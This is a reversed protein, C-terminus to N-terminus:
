RQENHEIIENKDEDSKRATEAEKILYYDEGLLAENYYTSKKRLEKDLYDYGFEELLTQKGSFLNTGLGLREGEIQVEISALITPYMDMTTFNRNITNTGEIASNIIVNYVTREYDKDIHSAYFESQMGLHDGIIVITTNKYFSQKATWEVFENVLKSTYAHVNEYQTEYKSEAFESLYGDVFHTDATHIILNFPEHKSALNLVEEKAWEFLKDDEFGWWVRDKETMKGQEIAYNVDFIKYRGNTTFYQTRGGYEGESGMMIELNYGNEELIDGLTYANDLYKGNGSYVNSNNLTAPTILPIGATEAVLGGSTFGTGYVPVHGGIKETNSFNINNIALEELEPIVSYSWGGGNEKSCLSNEMSEISIIILNRKQEPFKIDKTSGDVYYQEYIDTTQLNYKVYTDIKFGNVTTILAFIFIITTYIIRHNATIKIPYVQITKEKEKYKIKIYITKNINKIVFIIMILFVVIVLGINHNIVETIVSSSTGEIGHLIYYLIQDFEQEAYERSYYISGVIMISSLLLIILMIITSIKKKM